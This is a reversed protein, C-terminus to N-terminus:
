SDSIINASVEITLRFCTRICCNFLLLGCAVLLLGSLRSFVPCLFRSVAAVGPWQGSIFTAIDIAM